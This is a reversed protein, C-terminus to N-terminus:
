LITGRGLWEPNLSRHDFASTVFEHRYLGAAMAALSGPSVEDDADAFLLPHAALAGLQSALHHPSRTFPVIVGVEASASM